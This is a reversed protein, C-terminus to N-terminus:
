INNDNKMIKKIEKSYEGKKNYIYLMKDIKLFKNGGKIAKILVLNAQKGYSSAVVRIEKPEMRYKRLLCIIDVLREPKHVMYFIGREKLAQQSINIFDELKAAIEHRSILKKENANIIGTNLEKYPPNTVVVDFYNKEILKKEIIKNIDENIIKLNKELNNLKISRKAMEAVDKQIEIGIINSPKRKGYVLLGLIGTGAGLDLVKDTNRIDAAFESLIVSDIGFCFGKANQIIKLNECNLEDIREDKKLKM